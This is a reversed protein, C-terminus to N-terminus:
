NGANSVILKFDGAKFRVHVEHTAPTIWWGEAHGEASDPGLRPLLTNELRVSDVSDATQVVIEYAYSTKAAGEIMMGGRERHFHASTGNPLSFSPEVGAGVENAPYIKWVLSSELLQPDSWRLLSTESEAKFPLISGARVLLPIEDLPAAITKDVGGAYHEGTWYNVWEGKPLYMKRTLAGQEIVPAVLLYEGLLYQYDATASGPDGPFELVMHRMIPVGTRHAEEAYTAFYPLLSSHLIAYKKWLATTSADFWLDVYHRPRAWPHDRMVPTLAGFEAWRMWLEKSDGDSL